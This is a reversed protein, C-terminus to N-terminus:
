YLYQVWDLFPCLGKHRGSDLWGAHMMCGYTDYLNRDLWKKGKRQISAM